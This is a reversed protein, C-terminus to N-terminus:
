QARGQWPRRQRTRGHASRGVRECVGGELGLPQGREVSVADEVRGGLGGEVIGHRQGRLETSCRGGEDAQQGAVPLPELGPETERGALGAEVVRDANVRQGLAREQDNGVKGGVRAGTGIGQDRFFGSDAEIGARGQDGRFPHRDSGQAHEVGHRPGRPQAVRLARAERREGARHHRLEFQAAADGRALGFGCGQGVAFQAQPERDLRGPGADEVVVEHRAGQGPVPAGPGQEPDPRVLRHAIGAGEEGAEMGLIPRAGIGRYLRGEVGGSGAQEVAGVARDRRVARHDGPDRSAAGEDHFPIAPLPPCAAEDARHPVHGGLARRLGGDRGGLLAVAEDGAGGVVRDPVPIEDGVVHQPVLGQLGGVAPRRLRDLRGAPPPEVADMGLIAGAHLRIDAADDVAVSLVPVVFVPEAAGVAGIGVHEVAARHRAPGVAPRQAHDAGHQVQGLAVADGGLEPRHDLAGIDADHLDIRARHDRQLDVGLETRDPARLFGVDDPMGDGLPRRLRIRRLAVPQVAPQGRALDHALGQLLAVAALVPAQDPAPDVEDRLHAALRDLGRRHDLVDGRLLRGLRTLRRQDFEAVSQAVGGAGELDAPDHGPNEPAGEAQPIRTVRRDIGRIELPGAAGRAFSRVSSRLPSRLPSRVPAGGGSRQRGRERPQAAALGQGHGVQAGIGAECRICAAVPGGADAGQDRHRQHPPARAGAEDVGM